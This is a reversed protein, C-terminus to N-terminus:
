GLRERRPRGPKSRSRSRPVNFFVRLPVGLVHAAEALWGVTMNAGRTEVSRLFSVSCSLREALTEQTLGHKQREEALRRGVDRLERM